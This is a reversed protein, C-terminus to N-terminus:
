IRIFITIDLSTSRGRGKKERKERNQKSFEESCGSRRDEKWEEATGKENRGKGVTRKKEEMKRRKGGKEKELDKMCEQVLKKKTNRAKDEYRIARRITKTKM